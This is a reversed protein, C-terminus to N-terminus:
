FRDSRSALKWGSMDELGEDFPVRTENANVMSCRASMKWRDLSVVKEEQDLERSEVATSIAASIAAVEDEDADDPIGLRVERGGVEFEVKIESEPEELM